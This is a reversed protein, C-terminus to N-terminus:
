VFCVRNGSLDEIIATRSFLRLHIGHTDQGPKAYGMMNIDAAPGTIDGIGVGIRYKDCGALSVFCFFLIFYMVLSKGHIDDM